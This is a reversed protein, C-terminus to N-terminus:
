DMCSIKSSGVEEYGWKGKPYRPIVYDEVYLLGYEEDRYGIALIGLFIHITRYIDKLPPLFDYPM